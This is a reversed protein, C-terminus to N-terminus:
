FNSLRVSDALSNMRNFDVKLLGDSIITLILNILKNYLQVALLDQTDAVHM